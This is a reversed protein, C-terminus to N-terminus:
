PKERDRDVKGMTDSTNKNNGSMKNKWKSHVMGLQFTRRNV